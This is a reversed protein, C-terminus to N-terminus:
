YIAASVMPNATVIGFDHTVLGEAMKAAISLTEEQSLL